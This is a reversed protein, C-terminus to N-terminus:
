GENVLAEALATVRRANHEWSYRRVERSAAVGLTRRLRPDHRLREISEVLEEIAGPRVLLGTTGDEIVEHIQGIRSAVVPKGVALYEFLKLPSFYFDDLLPYPAVAVDMRQILGPLRDHPVWGTLTITGGLRAGQVYGEIWGRLPGDGVLLLHYAPSRALLRRFAELLVEIGHWAKFSGVFGLVFKGATGEPCEPTVAPHFREPDVGNPIVLTRDPDAGRGVAYAKVEKSVALLLDAGAFVEAEIAEADAALALDRYRQEEERLPANVEVLCPIRLEQSARVGTASWLSYREYILDFKEQAYSRLLCNLIASSIGLSRGIKARANEHGVFLFADPSLPSGDTQVEVVQAMLPASGPGRSASLVRVEHGVAALANVLERIHVSAGKNGFVPIGRDASVYVIKM